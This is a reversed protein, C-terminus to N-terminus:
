SPVGQAVDVGHEVCYDIDHGSQRVRHNRCLKRDCTKGDGMPWDCLAVHGAPCAYCPERYGSRRICIIQRDPM